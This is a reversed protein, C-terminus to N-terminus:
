YNRMCEKYALKAAYDTKASTVEHVKSCYDKAESSFFEKGKNIADGGKDIVLSWFTIGVIVAIVWYVLDWDFKKKEMSEDYASESASEIRDCEVFFNPKRNYQFISLNENFSALDLAGPM